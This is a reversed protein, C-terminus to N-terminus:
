AIEDIGYRIPATRSRSSRRLTPAEGSEVSPSTSESATSGPSATSRSSPCEVNSNDTLIEIFGGDGTRQPLIEDTAPTACPALDRVSVNSERGDPYKVAAYTPNCDILEVEDAAPDYKSNRVFRRLLVPGPSSLWAPLSSGHTSRRQFNFFREHPTTNTATCLLSRISHLADTLVTEWLEDPLDSSALKLRIASWIVGNYRECQANGTSHYPTTRSSAVGKQLLYSKLDKSMFSTGRDSHIFNPMGCLGFVSELCKIVTTTHMNPCAFAFPFRSYEDIITLLYPNRSSSPLPGKFDISLREMPRVAKIIKGDTLNYFKPKIESCPKCSACIRRVDDTSFPLNKSRVFHLLRTVGPHCLGNHIERLTSNSVVSCCSARTLSDPVVNDKGPRYRVTYSFSALELRWELIKNNKIKTRRQNDFMFAVSRQDTVMTFHQRLLLYSWKRVAEIIATAEKEIAPYHIESGQLTRSMFAVPRGGQNLVASVSTDSADCELVFPLREDISDLTAKCLEGKLQNFALLAEGTVPFVTCKVLPRIKDSFKPIWKAYYAFMGLARQLAKKSNPPPYQQLPKLREMDPKITGGGVYYGLVNIVPVASVTKSDNLTLNRKQVVDLFAKINADHEDKTRGAVTINDLYPFTDKLNEEEVLKDMARQFVSVGNTVGFPVRLFQYLRGNAEFATFKKDSNKIKLQYYASRLDYTSYLSYKALENVMEDIRPLPYADLETYLNVTQSYDICMRKRHRKTEDKVVVVQARWPSSSEEIIGESLLESVKERIFQKDDNSFRRSKTAIPKHNPTVNPFLSPESVKASSLACHPATVNHIKLAPMSGEYVITMSTHKRQFDQGLLVECCLEELVSINFSPYTVCNFELSVMSYGLCKVRCSKSALSVDKNVPYIKLKLDEAIKRSIFSETSCSDFLASAAKGNIKVEGSAYSLGPPYSTTMALISQSYTVAAVGSNTASLKLRCVKSFHGKKGCQHCSADRAPCNTRNHYSNGCFYCKKKSYSAATTSNIERKINGQDNYNVEDTLNQTMPTVSVAASTAFNPQAYDSYSDANRQARDLSYAQSYAADLDLKKNELLRQRIAASSLGNMFSDRIMEEKYQVATVASFQCDKALKRMDRLFEELTEGPKQKRTSLLHRAFIVNPTRVYTTRLIKIAADYNDCDEILEYVTPSVCNVLATLRNTTATGVASIYNEFTKIWHLFEKACTVSSPDLDLRIPRLLKDM